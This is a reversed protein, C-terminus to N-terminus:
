HKESARELIKRAGTSNDHGMLIFEVERVKQYNVFFDEIQKLVMPELDSLDHVSAYLVSAEAVAIIRDNRMEKQGASRQSALIAGVLRADIQCGPFTPEDCFILVDLPDGDEGRTEPFFGFDYPFVMGEPMVKSLKMRGTREDFKYKNRSGRPTEVVAEVSRSKSRPQASDSGREM